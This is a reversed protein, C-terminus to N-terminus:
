NGLGGPLGQGAGGFVLDSARARMGLAGRVPSGEDRSIVEGSSYARRRSNMLDPAKNTAALAPKPAVKLESELVPLASGGVAGGARGEAGFHCIPFRPRKPVLSARVDYSSM